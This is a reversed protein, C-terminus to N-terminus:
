TWAKRGWTTLVIILVAEKERKQGKNYTQLKFFYLDM